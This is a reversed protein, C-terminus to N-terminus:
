LDCSCANMPQGQLSRWSFRSQPCLYVIFTSKKFSQEFILCNISAQLTKYKEYYLHLYFLLDKEYMMLSIEYFVVEVSMRMLRIVEDDQVDLLGFYDMSVYDQKYVNKGVHVM